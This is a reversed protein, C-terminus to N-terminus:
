ELPSVPALAIALIRDPYVCTIRIQIQFTGCKSSGTFIQAVRNKSATMKRINTSNLTKYESVRQPHVLLM